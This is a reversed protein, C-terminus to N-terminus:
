KKTKTSVNRRRLPIKIKLTKKVYGFKGKKFGYGNKLLRMEKKATNHKKLSVIRGHKNMMLMSKTLNGNTKFSKGHYVKARSGIRSEYKTGKIFVAGATQEPLISCSM